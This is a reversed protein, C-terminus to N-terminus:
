KGINLDNILKDFVDDADCTHKPLFDDMAGNQFDGFDDVATTTMDALGLETLLTLNDDSKVTKEIDIDSDLEALLKESSETGDKDKNQRRNFSKPEKMENDSLDHYEQIEKAYEIEEEDEQNDQLQFNLLLKGSLRLM